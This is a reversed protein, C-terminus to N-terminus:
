RIITGIIQDKMALQPTENIAIQGKSVGKIELYLLVTKFRNELLLKEDTADPSYGTLMIKQTPNAAINAVLEDLNVISPRTLNAYNPRFSLNFVRTSVAYGKPPVYLSKADALTPDLYKQSQILTYGKFFDDARGDISIITGDPALEANIPVVNYLIVTSKVSDQASLHLSGVIAFFLFIKKM